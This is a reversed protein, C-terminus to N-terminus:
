VLEDLSLGALTAQGSRITIRVRLALSPGRGGKTGGRPPPLGAGRRGKPMPYSATSRARARYAASREQPLIGVRHHLRHVMLGNAGIVKM